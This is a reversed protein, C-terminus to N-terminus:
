NAIAHRVTHASLFEQISYPHLFYILQPLVFIDAFDIPEFVSMFM